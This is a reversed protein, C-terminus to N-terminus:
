EPCSAQLTLLIYCIEKFFSRAVGRVGERGGEGGGRERVVEQRIWAVATELGAIREREDAPSSIDDVSDHGSDDEEFELSSTDDSVRARHSDSSSQSM